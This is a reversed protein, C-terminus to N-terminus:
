CQTIKLSFFPFSFSSIYPTENNTQVLLTITLTPIKTMSAIELISLECIAASLTFCNTQQFPIMPRSTM